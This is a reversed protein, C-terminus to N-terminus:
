PSGSGLRFLYFYILTLKLLFYLVIKDNELMKNYKVRDIKKEEIKVYIKKKVM